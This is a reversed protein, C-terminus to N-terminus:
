PENVSQVRSLALAAALQDADVIIWLECNGGTVDELGLTVNGDKDRAVVLENYYGERVDFLRSVGAEHNVALRVRVPEPTDDPLRMVNTIIGRQTRAFQALADNISEAVLVTTTRTSPPIFDNVATVEYQPM